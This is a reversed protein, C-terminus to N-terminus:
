QTRTDRRDKDPANHSEPFIFGNNKFALGTDNLRPAGNHCFNCNRGTQRAFNPTAEAKPTLFILTSVILAVVLAGASAIRKLELFRHDVFGRMIGGQLFIEKIAWMAM